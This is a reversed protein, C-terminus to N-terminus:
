IRAPLKKFIYLLYFGYVLDVTLCFVPWYFPINTSIMLGHHHFIDWIGHLIVGYGLLPARRTYGVIALFFFLMAVSIELLMVLITNDKLAFGVYIFAIAALTAAAILKTTFYKNLLLTIFIMAVSVMLGLIFAIM